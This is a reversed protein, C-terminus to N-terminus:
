GPCLLGSVEPVPWAPRACKEVGHGEPQRHDVHCNAIFFGGKEVVIARARVEAHLRGGRMVHVTGRCNVIGDLRGRVILHDTDVPLPLAIATYREIVVAPASIRCVCHQTTALRVEGESLLVGM